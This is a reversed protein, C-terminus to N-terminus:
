KGLYADFASQRIELVEGLGANYVSKVYADWDAKIDSEGTLWLAWYNNIIQNINAQAVALKNQQDVTYKMFMQPYYDAPTLKALEDAYVEREKLAFEMDQQMDIQVDRRIYMPGNDAFTSTWKWTGPDTDTQPPLVKYHKDGVKEINGDAVGGFLSEVSRQEDYFADIFKMAIEKNKCKASMSVRNTSMNLGSFDNTWRTDYTGPEVGIDYALADLPKYQSYLKPGFKDTEEWGFTVGVLANGNEDGRSLSQFTSYDNTIANPNILGEAYLDILYEMFLKYREDVAYNKVTYNEAFYGDHSWDTFQIGLAGLLQVAGYASGFWGNFDFPIEDNPNGNGNADEKKFAILVDKLESFTTPAELGLNDLWTQNIFMVTNTAPWKGQFKPTGYIKGDITQALVKTDPEEEFMAKINPAHNDILDTLDQFLGDYTVYDSDATASFLLDPIDGSAFRTAKTTGWDTYIQEWEIDVGVEEQLEMLWEMDYVSQTLPHACFLATLKVKKGKNAVKSSDGDTDVSSNKGCGILASAIMAVVLLLALLRKKMVKIRRCM